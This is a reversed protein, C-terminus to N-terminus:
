ASAELTGAVESSNDRLRLRVNLTLHHRGADSVSAALDQGELRVVSGHYRGPQATPGFTVRGQDLSVGGGAAPTGQLVIALQGTVSGSVPGAITVSVVGNADPAAQSLTGSFTATFPPTLAAAPPASPTASPSAPQTAAQEVTTTRTGLLATPTGARRAWGPRLPGAVTFAGLAVVAAAAVAVASGRRTANAPAWDTALRWGVAGVVAALCVVYIFLVWGAQSDSGTGLGHALAVPWSAYAAWHIARWARLGIRDRILSSVVLAIMLDFAIAGLGLWLPRYTGTFPIFVNVVTIPAFTDVLATVIHVGLLVIAILSANKHLAAVVFRPLGPRAFRVVQTVGLILTITLLVLAVLGTGRTLYWLARSNVGIAAIPM